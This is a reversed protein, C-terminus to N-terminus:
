SKMVWKWVPQIIIKKGQIILEEEQNFTLILGKELNHKKLAEMLGQIEREKNQTELQYCVQIAQMVKLGECILFDCESKNKYYYIEKGKRKLELFVLNELMRGKNESFSYSNRGIIANDICYVKKPNVLQKRFSFDHKKVTFLLYAEEFHNMFQTITNGSGAKVLEKLKNYSIEKGINSILYHLLSKVATENRLENRNMVDRYFIDQFLNRLIDTDNTKLYEPFGGKKLYEEFMRVSHKRKVIKLFERYSFPYLELTIHRGTLRSGLERSLMSANSGTIIVKEGKDVLQRVYIEWEEINQIEDFFYIGGVGLQERFIDELQIFDKLEFEALTIDEFYLYYIPKKNKLFQRVVTSKGGRRVGSIITTFKRLLKIEFLRPVGLDKKLDEQQKMVVRLLEDKLIM